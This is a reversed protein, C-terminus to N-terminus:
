SGFFGNSFMGSKKYDYWKDSVKGAGTVLSTAASVFPSANSAQSRYYAAKNQAAQVDNQTNTKLTAQDAAGMVDTSTLIDLPSGSGLDLGRAALSARQTGKLQNTQAYLKQAQSDGVRQANIAAADAMKANYTATERETNAKTFAGAASTVAGLSQTAMALRASSARSGTPDSPDIKQATVDIPTLLSDTPTGGPTCM